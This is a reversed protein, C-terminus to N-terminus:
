REHYAREFEEIVERGGEDLWRDMEEWYRDEDIEGLIFRTGADQIIVDLQPKNEAFTESVLGFSLDRVGHEQGMRRQERVREHSYRHPAEPSPEHAGLLHLSMNLASWATEEWDPHAFLQDTGEVYDFDEGGLVYIATNRPSNATDLAKLIRHMEEETEVAARPIAFAHSFGAGISPGRGNITGFHDFAEQPLDEAVYLDEIADYNGAALGHAGARGAWFMERADPNDPFDRNVLGDEYLRRFFKLGEMYEETLPAYTFNGDTDFGFNSPAGFWTGMINVYQWQNEPPQFEWSSLGIEFEEALAAFLEYVEEDTEPPRDIGHEAAVDARYTFVPRGVPRHTFLFVERGGIKGLERVDPDQKSLNPFDEAHEQVYEGIEWFAGEEVARRVQPSLALDSTYIRTLKPLDGAALRSPFVEEFAPGGPVWEMEFEVGHKERVEDWVPYVKEPPVDGLYRALVPVTLTDDEAAEEQGAAFAPSALVTAALVVCVMKKMRM